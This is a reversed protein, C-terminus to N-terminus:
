KQTLHLIDREVNRLHQLTQNYNELMVEYNEQSINGQFYDEELWEIYDEVDSIAEYLEYNTAKNLTFSMTMLVGISILIKKM